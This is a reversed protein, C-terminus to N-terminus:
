ATVGERAAAALAQDLDAIIASGSLQSSPLGQVVSVQSGDVPQLCVAAVSPVAHSFSL